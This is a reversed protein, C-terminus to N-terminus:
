EGKEKNRKAAEALHDFLGEGTAPRKKKPSAQEPEEPLIMSIGAKDTKNKPPEEEQAEKEAMSGDGVLVEAAQGKGSAFRYGWTVVDGVQTAGFESKAKGRVIHKDPDVPEGLEPIWIEFGAPGLRSLTDRMIKLMEFKADIGLKADYIRRKAVEMADLLAAEISDLARVATDLNRRADGLESQASALDSELGRAREIEKRTKPINAQLKEGASQIADLAAQLEDIPEAM